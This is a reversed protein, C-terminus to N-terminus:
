KIFAINPCAVATAKWTQMTPYGGKTSELLVSGGESFLEIM